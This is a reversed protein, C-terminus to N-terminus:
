TNRCTSRVYYKRLCRSVCRHISEVPILFVTSSSLTHTHTIIASSGFGFHPHCILRMLHVSLCRFSYIISSICHPRIYYTYTGQAPMPPVLHVFNFISFEFTQERNDQRTAAWVRIMRWGLFKFMKFSDFLSSSLTSRNKGSIGSKSAPFTHKIGYRYDFSSKLPWFVRREGSENEHNM